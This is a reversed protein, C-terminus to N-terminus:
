GRAGALRAFLYVRPLFEAQAQCLRGGQKRGRERERECVYVCECECLIESLDLCASESAKQTYSESLRKCGDKILCKGKEALLSPPSSGLDLATSFM